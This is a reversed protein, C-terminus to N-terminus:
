NLIIFKTNNIITWVKTSYKKSQGCDQRFKVAYYYRGASFDLTDEPTLSILLEGQETCDEKTFKKKIIANEFPQNIDMIGFYVADNNRMTYPNGQNDVINVIFEFSDGRNITIINQSPM